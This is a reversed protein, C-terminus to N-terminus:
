VVPDRRAKCWPIGDSLTAAMAAMAIGPTNSWLKVLANSRRVESESAGRDAPEVPIQGANSWCKVLM